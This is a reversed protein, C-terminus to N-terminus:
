VQLSAVFHTRIPNIYLSYNKYDIFFCKPSDCISLWYCLSKMKCSGAKQHCLFPKPSSPFNYYVTLVIVKVAVSFTFIWEKGLQETNVKLKAVSHTELM